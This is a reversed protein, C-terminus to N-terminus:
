RRANLFTEMQKVKKFEAFETSKNLFKYGQSSKVIVNNSKEIVDLLWDLSFEPNNNDVVYITLNDNPKYENVYNSFKDKDEDNFNVICFSENESQISSPPTVLTLTGLKNETM